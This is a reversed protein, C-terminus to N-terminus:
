KGGADCFVGKAGGPRSFIAVQGVFIAVQGIRQDEAAKIIALEM